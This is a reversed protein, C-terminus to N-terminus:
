RLRDVAGDYPLSVVFSVAATSGTNGGDAVVASAGGSRGAEGARRTRQAQLDGDASRWRTSPRPLSDWGRRRDVVGASRSFDCNRSRLYLLLHPLFCVGVPVHSTRAAFDVKFILLSADRGGAGQERARRRCGHSWIRAFLSEPLGHAAHPGIKRRGEGM